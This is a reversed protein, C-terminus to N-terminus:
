LKRKTGITRIGAIKKEKMINRQSHMVIFDKSPRIKFGGPLYTGM